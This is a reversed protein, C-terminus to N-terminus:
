HGWRRSADILAVAPSATATTPSTSITSIAFLWLTQEFAQDFQRGTSVYAAPSDPPPERPPRSGWFVAAGAATRARQFPKSLVGRLTRVPAAVGPPGSIVIVQPSPEIEDLSPPRRPASERTGAVNVGGLWALQEGASQDALCPQFGDASCALYVRVPAGGSLAGRYKALLADASDALRTGHAGVGLVPGLRRYVAPIRSLQGDLIIGPVGTRKQVADVSAIYDENVTGYDIYADPKLAVLEADAPNDVEPLQRILIPQRFAPPFFELADGEPVRNRGVLKDPALTYLLVEAPAGAAFVRGVTPLTVTRTADDTLAVQAIATASSCVLCMIYKTFDGLTRGRTLMFLESHYGMADRSRAAPQGTPGSYPGRLRPYRNDRRGGAGLVPQKVFEHGNRVPFPDVDLDDSDACVASLIAGTSIRVDDQNM